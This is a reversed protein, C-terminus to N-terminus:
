RKLCGTFRDSVFTKGNNLLKSYAGGTSKDVLYVIQTNNYIHCTPNWMKL